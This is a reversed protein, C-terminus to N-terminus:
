KAAGPGICWLHKESRLFLRGASVAPSACCKEGITNRALAKFEPGAEVVTTEGNEGLFYIRGEAWIPSASYNGGLRQRWVQEGTEAKLCRAVGGETITFLWPKVYLMSPIMPVDKSQEWAIHTKTVDGTGGTRVARITPSGFGSTAFALGDGLVISPVVGEGPSTASWLREGTALDFGQIVDGAGSVLIARGELLLVRPTVHAIRSPGRKARWRVEGTAKDCALIVSEEWPKQWGVTKDPGRSSGDFPVIVLDGYLIPSVGLGHQSYYKFDRNTWVTRGDMALAALSGDAALVYVRQGDTVPTASAYSNQAVKNETPQRLVERDWLVKGDDRGLCLLHFSQGGETAATAFVRDGFVIPSSWGEGPIPTKWAVNRTASWETPVGTEASLGQGTPGRWGPWDEGAAPLSALAVAMAAALVTRM